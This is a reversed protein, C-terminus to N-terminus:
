AVAGGPGGLARPRTAIWNEIESAPWRTTKSGLKLPLPFDGARMMRYIASRSIHVREIVEAYSLLKDM